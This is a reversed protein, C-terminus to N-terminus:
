GAALWRYLRLVQNMIAREDMAEPVPAHGYRGELILRAAATVGDALAGPQMACVFGTRGQDLWDGIDGVDTSVVPRMSRVAEKVVTPSAEYRSTLLLIGHEALLAPVDDHPVRGLWRIRDRARSAALRRILDPSDEGAGAITLTYDGGDAALRELTEVAM